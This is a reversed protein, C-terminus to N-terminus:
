SGSPLLSDRNLNSLSCLTTNVSQLRCGQEITCSLIVAAFTDVRLGFLFLYEAVFSEIMSYGGTLTLVGGLGQEFDARYTSSDIELIRSLRDFSQKPFKSPCFINSPSEFDLHRSTVM